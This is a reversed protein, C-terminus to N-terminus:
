FFQVPTPQFFCLFVYGMPAKLGSGGKVALMEGDDDPPGGVGEGVGFWRVLEEFFRDMTVPSTDQSNFRMDKCKGELVAWESLYGTLRACSHFQMEQWSEWNSPFALKVGRKACVAAYISFPHLANMQANNTSGIIWGPMIINWGTEPHDACYSM